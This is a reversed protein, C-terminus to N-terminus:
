TIHGSLLTDQMVTLKVGKELTQEDFLCDGVLPCLVTACGGTVSDGVRYYYAKEKDM